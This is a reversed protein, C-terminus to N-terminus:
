AILHAALAFPDHRLGPDCMILSPKLLWVNMSRAIQLESDVSYRIPDLSVEPENHLYIFYKVKLLHDYFYISGELVLVLM